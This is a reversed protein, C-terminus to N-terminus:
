LFKIIRYESGKTTPSNKTHGSAIQLKESKMFNMFIMLFDHFVKNGHLPQVNGCVRSIANLHSASWVSTFTLTESCADTSKRFKGDSHQENKANIDVVRCCFACKREIRLKVSVQSFGM